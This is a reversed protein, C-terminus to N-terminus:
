RGCPFWCSFISFMSFSFLLFVSISLLTLLCDSSDMYDTLRTNETRQRRRDSGGGIVALRRAAAAAASEHLGAAAVVPVSNRSISRPSATVSTSRWNFTDQMIGVLDPEVSACITSFFSNHYAIKKGPLLSVCTGLCYFLLFLYLVFSSIVTRSLWGAPSM